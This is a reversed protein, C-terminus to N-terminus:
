ALLDARKEIKKGMEEEDHESIKEFDHNEVENHHDPSDCCVMMQFEDDGNDDPDQSSLQPSMQRFPNNKSRSSRNSAPSGSSRALKSMADELSTQRKSAVEETM